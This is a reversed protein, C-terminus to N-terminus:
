KHKEHCERRSQSLSEVASNVVKLDSSKVAERLSSAQKLFAEYIEEGKNPYTCMTKSDQYFREVLEPEPVTQETVCCNKITKFDKAMRKKLDKYNEVGSETSSTPEGERKEAEPLPTALKFKLKSSLTDGKAKLSIKVQTDAAISCKEGNITVIGRELEEAMMRLKEATEKISVYFEKKKKNADSM